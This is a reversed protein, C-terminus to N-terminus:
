WSTLAAGIADAAVRGFPVQGREQAGALVCTALVLSPM